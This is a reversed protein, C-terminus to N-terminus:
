LFTLHMADANCPCESGLALLFSRVCDHWTTDLMAVCGTAIARACRATCCLSRARFMLFRVAGMMTMMTMMIMTALQRTRINNDWQAQLSRSSAKVGYLDWFVNKSRSPSNGHLCHLCLFSEGSMKLGSHQVLLQDLCSISWQGYKSWVLDYASWEKLRDWPSIQLSRLFNDFHIM